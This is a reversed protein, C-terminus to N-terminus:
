HYYADGLGDAHQGHACAEPVIFHRTPDPSTNDTGKALIKQLYHRNRSNSATINLCLKTERTCKSIIDSEKHRPSRLTTMDTGRRLPSATTAKGSREYDSAGPRGNGKAHNFQAPQSQGYNCASQWFRIPYKRNAKMAYPRVDVELHRPSM